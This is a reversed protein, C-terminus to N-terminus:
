FFGFYNNRCTNLNNCRNIYIEIARAITNCLDCDQIIEVPDTNIFAQYYTLQACTNERCTIRAVDYVATPLNCPTVWLDCAVNADDQTLPILNYKYLVGNVVIENKLGKM